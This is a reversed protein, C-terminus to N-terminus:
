SPGRAEARRPPKPRRAGRAGRPRPWGQNRADGARPRRRAILRRDLGGLRWDISASIAGLETQRAAQWKPWDLSKQAQKLTPPTGTQRQKRVM